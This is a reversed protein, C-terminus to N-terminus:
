FFLELSLFNTSFFLSPFQYFHVVFLLWVAVLHLLFFGIDSIDFIWIVVKVAIRVKRNMLFHELVRNSSSGVHVGDHVVWMQELVFNNKVDAAPCPNKADKCTIKKRYVLGFASGFVDVSDFLGVDVDMASIDDLFITETIFDGNNITHHFLDCQWNILHVNDNWLPHSVKKEIFAHEVRHEKGSILPESLTAHKEGVFGFHVNCGKIILSVVFLFKYKEEKNLFKQFLTWPILIVQILFHTREYGKTSGISLWSIRVM